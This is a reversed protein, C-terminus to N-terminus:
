SRGFLNVFVLVVVYFGIIYLLFSFDSAFVILALAGLITLVAFCGGQNKNHAM